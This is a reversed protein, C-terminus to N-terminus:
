FEINLLKPAVLYINQLLAHFKLRYGMRMEWWTFHGNTPRGLLHLGVKERQRKNITSTEELNKTIFM